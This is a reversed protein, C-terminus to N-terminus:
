EGLAGKSAWVLQALPDDPQESGNGDEYEKCGREYSGDAKKGSRVEEVVVCYEDTEGMLYRPFTNQSFTAIEDMKAYLAAAVPLMYYANTSRGSFNLHKPNFAVHVPDGFGPKEFDFEVFDEVLPDEAAADTMATFLGNVDSSILTAGDYDEDSAVMFLRKGGGKPTVWVAPRYGNKDSTVSVFLKAFDIYGGNIILNNTFSYGTIGIEFSLEDCIYKLLGETLDSTRILIVSQWQCPFESPELVLYNTEVDIRRDSEAAEELVREATWTDDGTSEMCKFLRGSDNLKLMAQVGKITGLLLASGEEGFRKDIHGAGDFIRAILGGNGMALQMEKGREDM